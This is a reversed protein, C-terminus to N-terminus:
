NIKIIDDGKAKSAGAGDMRSSRSGFQMARKARNSASVLGESVALTRLLRKDGLETQRFDAKLHLPITSLWRLLPQALFPFRVERSHHSLVRDDRGLNRSPLRDLDMELEDALVDWGGKQYAVRHRGYGGLAEDAGLGSLLVRAQTTYDEKSNYLYGQGRSAFYLPAALSLDMVTNKPYMLEIITQKETNYDEATIDVNVLRFERGPHLKQLEEVAEMTTQRDPARSCVERLTDISPNPTACFAVNILEIPESKPLIKSALHAVMTCDIGGSFLVAVKCERLSSGTEKHTPISRVRRDVVQTLIHRFQDLIDCPINEVTDKEPIMRNLKISTDRQHKILSKDDKLEYLITADCEEWSLSPDPISSVLIGDDSSSMLLSRRGLTDRGFFTSRTSTSYYVFACPDAINLLYDRLDDDSLSSLINLLLVGDNCEDPVEFSDFIQGNYCLIDGKDSELPQQTLTNGRLHLVTSTFYGAPTNKTSLYDPGRRKNRIILDKYEIPQKISHFIIGCM